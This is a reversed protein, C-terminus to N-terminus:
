GFLEEFKKKWDKIYKGTKNRGRGKHGLGTGFPLRFKSETEDSAEATLDAHDDDQRNTEAPPEDGLQDAAYSYLGITPHSLLKSFM